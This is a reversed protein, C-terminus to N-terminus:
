KSGLARLANEIVAIHQGQTAILKYLYFGVLGVCGLLIFPMYKEFVGQKLKSPSPPTSSKFYSKAWEEKNMVKRVEPSIVSPKGSKPDIPFRNDAVYDLTAVWQPFLMHILGKDWWEFVICSPIVDFKRGEFIVYRSSMKVFKKIKTRNPRTLSCYIKNRKSSNAWWAMAAILLTILMVFTQANM